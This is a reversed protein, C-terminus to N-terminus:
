ITTEDEPPTKDRKIRDRTQQLRLQLRRAATEIRPLNAPRFLRDPDTEPLSLLLYRVPAIADSLAAAPTAITRIVENLLGQEQECFREVAQRDPRSRAEPLSGRQEPAVKAPTATDCLDILTQVSDIRRAGVPLGSTGLDFSRSCDANITHLQRAYSHLVLDSLLREGQKGQLWLRPRELLNEFAALGCPRMRTCQLLTALHFPAGRAHTQGRSYAFDLGTFLVPGTTIALAAEVASVGVSGRPPLPTPLLSANRLRDFLPLPHFRTSFFYLDSFLRLSQPNSTLDCLIKYRSDRNPLFDQLTHIQADLTFVWDPLIDVAVLVPLSTDVAMLTVKERIRHIWDLSDELSPGAGCILVPGKTALDAIDGADPLFGLNTFLNKLWLEGMALLTLKNQWFLRIEEEVTEQLEQYKRRYLQYGGCLHLPLVRRFRWPGLKQLVAAAQEVRDARIITLLPSQPLPEAQTLALKFLNEDVEVCLIHCSEPLRDLLERLGYGLGLSPIFVLTKPTILLKEVRRAAGAKPDKPSYLTKGRYTVTFGRGTDVLRPEADSM